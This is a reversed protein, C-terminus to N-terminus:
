ARRKRLLALGGLGFLLVTAPEPVFSWKLIDHNEFGSGTASTFGIWANNDYFSLFSELRVPSELIPNALDDLFVTLVGPIYCIRVTHISGDKLSSAASATGLSYTHDPNNETIGRTQISVHNDDPDGFYSNFWTDFEIAVSNPIGPTYYPSFPHTGYGMGGGYGGLASIDYNQIVFAFGDAGGWDWDPDTIQFQFETEFGSLVPQKTTLWAAGRQWSVSQTLRIKDETHIADGVLNIGDISSFDDYVIPIASCLQVTGTLDITLIFIAVFIKSWIKM